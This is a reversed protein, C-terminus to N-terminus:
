GRSQGQRRRLKKWAALFSGICPMMWFLRSFRNVRVGLFTHIGAIIKSFDQVEPGPSWLAHYPHLLGPVLCLIYKLIQSMFLCFQLKKPICPSKNYDIVM